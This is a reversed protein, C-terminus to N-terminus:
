AVSSAAGARAERFWRLTRELGDDLGISPEWGLVERARSIDPCRRQPDDEPLPRYEISDPSRGCAAAVKRALALVTVEEPQGLNVPRHEDSDLLALLGRVLDDVYCLSRTQLGDGYVTLPRNGLAQSAFSPIARGDDPRMRPGYTNFIRAIKTDLGARHFAMTYAEACRKAEDYVSRPGIPNVNGWYSERQPHELADGYVESTSAMLFRAGNASALALMQRTGISGVDLTQLPRAMYDPPSAPSALHLVADLSGEIELPLCVDHEVFIAEGTQEIARVNNRSGTALNDVVLVHDGRNILAQAVHSGVFGAGGSVLVRM